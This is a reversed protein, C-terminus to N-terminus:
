SCARTISRTPMPRSNLAPVLGLTELIQQRLAANPAGAVNALINNLAHLSSDKVREFRPNATTVHNLYTAYVFAM